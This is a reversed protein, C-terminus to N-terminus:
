GPRCSVRVAAQCVYSRRVAQQPLVKGLAVVQAHVAAVVELPHSLLEVVSRASSSRELLRAFQDAVEQQLSRWFGGIRLQSAWATGLAWRERLTAARTPPWLVIPAMPEAAGMPAARQFNLLVHKTRASGSPSPRGQRFRGQRIRLTDLPCMCGWRGNGPSVETGLFTEAGDVAASVTNRRAAIKMNKATAIPATTHAVPDPAEQGVQGPQRGSSIAGCHCSLGSM